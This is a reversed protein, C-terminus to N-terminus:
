ERPEALRRFNLLDGEVPPPVRARRQQERITLGHVHDRLTEPVTVHADREVHVGVDQLRMLPRRSFPNPHEQV